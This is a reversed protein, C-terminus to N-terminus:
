TKGEKYRAMGAPIWKPPERRTYILLKQKASLYYNRYSQVADNTKCEDPMALAFPKLPPNTWSCMGGVPCDLSKIVDESKHRRGYRYTYEDCLALGLERLWNYRASNSSAWLTCPHHQHTPKYIMPYTEVVADDSIKMTRAMTFVATSLIQASELVMKVCHKDVYMQAAIVPNEDLVFINM